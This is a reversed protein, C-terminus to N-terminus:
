RSIALVIITRSLMALMARPPLANVVDCPAGCAIPVYM